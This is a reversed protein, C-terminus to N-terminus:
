QFDKIFQYAKDRAERTSLHQSEGLIEAVGTELKARKFNEDGTFTDHDIGGRKTARETAKKNIKQNLTAFIRQNGAGSGEVTLRENLLDVEYHFDYSREKSIQRIDRENRMAKFESMLITFLNYAEQTDIVKILVTFGDENMLKCNQTRGRSDKYEWEKFITNFNIKLSRHNDNMANSFKLSNKQVEQYKEAKKISKLLDHHRVGLMEAVVESSIADINRFKLLGSETKKILKGIRM